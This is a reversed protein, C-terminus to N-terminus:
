CGARRSGEKAQGKISQELSNNIRYDLEDPNLPIEYRQFAYDKKLYEKKKKNQTRVQMYKQKRLRPQYNFSQLHYFAIERLQKNIETDNLKFFFNIIKPNYYKKLELLIYM